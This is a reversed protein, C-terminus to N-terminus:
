GGLPLDLTSFLSFRAHGCPAISQKALTVKCGELKSLKMSIVSVQASHISMISM